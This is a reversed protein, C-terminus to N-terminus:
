KAANRRRNILLIAAGIILISGVVTFITTGIGGTSPLTIDNTNQITTSVVGTTTNGNTAQGEGVKITLSTIKFQNAGEQDTAGSTTMSITFDTEANKGTPTDYGAPAKTEILTYNSADLGKIRIQQYDGNAASTIMVTADNRESTWSKLTYPGINKVNPAEGATSASDLVAYLVDNGSGKRLIFEAGALTRTNDKANVKSVDLEVDFVTAESPESKGKDNTNPDNSYNIVVDNDNGVGGQVASKNVYASYVVFVYDNSTLTPTSALLNDFTIKLTGGGLAPAETPETGGTKKEPETVTYDGTSGSKLSYTQMNNDQSNKLVVSEIKHFTLGASMHDEFEYFYTDYSDVNKSITGKLTYFVKEGIEANATKNTNPMAPATASATVGKDPTPKSGKPAVTVDKVVELINASIFDDDSAKEGWDKILYYGPTVELPTTSSLQKGTTKTVHSNLAKAFDIAVTPNASLIKAVAAADQADAFVNTGSVKFADNAKLEAIITNAGTLDTGWDTVSITSGEVTGQFVQYARYEHGAEQGTASGVSSLDLTIKPDGEAAMAPVAMALVMIAALAFVILRKIKNM